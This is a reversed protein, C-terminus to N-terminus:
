SLYFMPYSLIRILTKSFVTIYYGSYSEQLRLFLLSDKFVFTFTKLSFLICEGKSSSQSQAGVSWLIFIGPLYSFSLWSDVQIGYFVSFVFALHYIITASISLLFVSLTSNINSESHHFFITVKV